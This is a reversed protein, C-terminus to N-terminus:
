IGVLGHNVSTGEKGSCGMSYEEEPEVGWYLVFLSMGRVKCAYFLSERRYLVAALVVSPHTGALILCFEDSTVGFGVTSNLM